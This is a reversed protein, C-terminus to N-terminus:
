EILFARLRDEMKNIKTVVAHNDQSKVHGTSRVSVMESLKVPCNSLRRHVVSTSQRRFVINCAIDTSDSPVRFHLVKEFTQGSRIREWVVSPCLDIQRMQEHMGGCKIKAKHLRLRMVLNALEPGVPLRCKVAVSMGGTSQSVHGPEIYFLAAILKEAAATIQTQEFTGGSYELLVDIKCGPWSDHALARPCNEPSSLMIVRAFPSQYEEQRFKLRPGFKLSRRTKKVYEINPLHYICEEIPARKCFIMLVFFIGVGSAAVLDFNEHLPSHLESRLKRLLDAISPADAVTGHLALVRIGATPPKARIEADNKLGCLPCRNSDRRYVCTDCIRHGCSMSWHPRSALCSLCLSRVAHNSALHQGQISDWQQIASVRADHLTSEGSCAQAAFATFNHRLATSFEPWVADRRLRDLYM